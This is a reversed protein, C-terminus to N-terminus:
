SARSVRSREEFLDNTSASPRDALRGVSLPADSDSADPAEVLAQDGWVTWGQRSQRAFLELYPGPCFREVRAHAEAPKESHRGVPAIIVEFVDKALRQPKGRKGLVCFEANRRLTLGPGFFLDREAFFLSPQGALSRRLKIWTFGMATPTFGWAKMVAVHAGIALFPGTVWLFLYADRAAVGALPLTAIEAPKLTAYHRRANRNPKADSNSAFRWPPDAMVCAFGSATIPLPAFLANL